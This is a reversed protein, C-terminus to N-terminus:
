RSREGEEGLEGGILCRGGHGVRELIRRVQNKVGLIVDPTRTPALATQPKKTALVAFYQRSVELPMNGPPQWPATPSM